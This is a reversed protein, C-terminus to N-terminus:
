TAGHSTKGISPKTTVLSLGTLLCREILVEASGLRHEHEPIHRFRGESHLLAPPAFHCGALVNHSIHRQRHREVARKNLQSISKRNGLVM